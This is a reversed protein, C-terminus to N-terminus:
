DEAFLETMILSTAGCMRDVYQRANASLAKLTDPEDWLSEMQRNFENADKVSFGGKVEILDRAEKFKRYNPGFLVPMGYTAAELTNHIGVGFGGGIYAVQGYKYISSLMGITDVILVRAKDPEAAEETYRFFPVNLKEEIQKIHERHIEHPAIILKVGDNVKQIYNLLIDEDPAWTSGAVIVKQGSAVFREILEFDKSEGAITRVRDFRTDGAVSYNIIGIGALLNGSVEDQVYLKDFTKLMNRFWGGYSKFFTQEKRFIMSVGYVPVRRKALERLFHHWFEYKIFFVKEPNVAQIFAKANRWTDAPLYLVHDALDFNKRVEYGSPSFFTLVVKYDPHQEKIKEIIPRGQEFEGLSAAHIWVVKGELRLEKIRRQTEKRGEHLLKAKVNFPALLKLAISYAGIGINYLLTM